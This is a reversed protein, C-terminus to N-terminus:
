LSSDPKGYLTWGESETIKTFRRQLLARVPLTFYDYDLDHETLPREIRDHATLVCAIEPRALDDLWPGLPYKGRLALHTLPFPHAVLRGDLMMEIGPEDAVVLEDPGAGCRDRAHAVLETHDRNAQIAACTGRVSAADTWLVQFPVFFGLAFLARSSLDPLPARAILAVAAVCPEMWYNAASGIKPLTSLSWLVSAALAALGLLPGQEPEGPELTIGPVTASARARARVRWGLWGAFAFLGCFFQARHKMQARLVLASLPQGTARTLHDLWAGGSVKQLVGAVVATVALAAGIPGLTRRPSRVFSLVFVGAAMGIVNPKTWAALAFLAGAVADLRERRLTRELALGALLLAIADPRASGGFEAFEYVGGVFGAALVAKARCGRRARAALLALLGWWSAIGLWRGLTAAHAVPLLSLVWSWLPPYLVYYRAAVPGYDHAGLVPDVYLPLHARIRAAEFLVAGEVGDLPRLSVDLVAGALTAVLTVAIVLGALSFGLRAFRRPSDHQM